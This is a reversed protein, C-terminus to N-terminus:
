FYGFIRKTIGFADMCITNNHMCNTGYFMCDVNWLNIIQLVGCGYWGYLALMIGMMKDENNLLFLAWFFAIFGLMIHLLSPTPEFLNSVRM